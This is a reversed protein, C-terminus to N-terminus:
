LKVVDPAHEKLYIQIDQAIKGTSQTASQARAQQINLMSLLNKREEILADRVKELAAIRRKIDGVATQATLALLRGHYSGNSELEALAELVFSFDEDLRPPPKPDPTTM